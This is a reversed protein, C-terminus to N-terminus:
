ILLHDVADSAPTVNPHGLPEEWKHADYHPISASVSRVGCCYMLPNISVTAKCAPAAVKKEGGRGSKKKKHNM